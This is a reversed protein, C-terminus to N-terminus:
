RDMFSGDMSRKLDRYSTSKPDPLLSLLDRAEAMRELREEEELMALGIGANLFALPGLNLGPHRHFALDIRGLPTLMRRAPFDPIRMEQVLYAPLRVIGNRPKDAEAAPVAFRPEAAAVVAFKPAVTALQAAMAPSLNR